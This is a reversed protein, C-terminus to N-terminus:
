YIGDFLCDYYRFIKYVLCCSENFTVCCSFLLIALAYALRKIWGDSSQISVHSMCFEDACKNCKEADSFACM